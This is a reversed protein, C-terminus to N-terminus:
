FFQTQTVHIKTDPQDYLQQIRQEIDNAQQASSAVVLGNQAQTNNTFYTKIQKITAETPNEHVPRIRANHGLTNAPNIFEYLKMNIGVLTSEASFDTQYNTIVDINKHTFHGQFDKALRLMYTPPYKEDKEIKPLGYTIDGLFAADYGRGLQEASIKTGSPLQNLYKDPDLAIRDYLENFGPKILLDVNIQRHSKM